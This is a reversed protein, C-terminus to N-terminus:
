VPRDVQEFLERRSIALVKLPRENLEVLLEGIRDNLERLSFFKENRLRALVWRSVQLVGNEGKAKDRPKRVRAPLVAVGYHEAMERYTRNVAPEYRCPTTVGSKLNDPVVMETVGGLYGFTRVHSGIWDELGQSWTAEVYTYTSAGLVAVFIAAERSEGTAADHVPVTQGAYDVILKEGGVYDQRLCPELRGEWSRYLQCFRSYGYGEADTARYEQWLLSLTVGKRKLEQHVKAWDPAARAVTAATVSASPFLRQDLEEDSLGAVGEWSLGAVVARRLYNEVTGRGIQLSREVQRHSLGREWKLRLLERIKRMLMRARPM